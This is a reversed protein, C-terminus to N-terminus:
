NIWYGMYQNQGNFLNIGDTTYNDSKCLMRHTKIPLLKIMEISIPECNESYEPIPNNLFYEELFSIPYINENNKKEIKIGINKLKYEISIVRGLFSRYGDDLNKKFNKIKIKKM